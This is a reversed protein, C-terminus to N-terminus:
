KQTSNIGGLQEYKKSRWSRVEKITCMINAVLKLEARGVALLNSRKM